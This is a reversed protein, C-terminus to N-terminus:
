NCAPDKQSMLTKSYRKIPIHSCVCVSVQGSVLASELNINHMPLSLHGGGFREVIANSGVASKDSLQLVDQLILSQFAVSDRWIKIPKRSMANSILSVFGDMLFSLSGALECQQTPDKTPEVVTSPTVSCVLTVPKKPKHKKILIPCDAIFHDPKKCYFCANGAAPGTASRRAVTRSASSVPQSSHSKILATKGRPEAPTEEFSVKHTLAFEDSLVAAVDLTVM